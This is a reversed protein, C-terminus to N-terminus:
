HFLVGLTNKGKVLRFDSKGLINDAGSYRATWDFQKSYVEIVTSDSTDVNMSEDWVKLGYIILATLVITPVVTWVVELKNNHAFFYAKNKSNGRYKYAFYFLLPSVIFFVFLILGMSIDMLADIQQGHLSSAPPLIVHNWEIMQWIVFLLFGFGVLLVLRGQNNNDNDTVENPNNGTIESLLEGVRVFQVLAAIILFVILGILINIM